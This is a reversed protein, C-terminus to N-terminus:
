SRTLLLARTHFARYLAALGPVALYPAVIRSIKSQDGTARIWESEVWEVQSFYRRCVRGIQSVSLYIVDNLFFLRYWETIESKTTRSASGSNPGSGVRAWAPPRFGLIVWVRVLPTPHVKGGFPILTHSELPRWGAPFFHLSYGGPRLVRAIESMPKSYSMVHELTSTSFCLDFSGDEFPFEGTPSSVFLCEGEDWMRNRGPTFQPRELDVGLAEYGEARLEQVHRGLGCGFDLIRADSPFPLRRQAAIARLIPLMPERSEWGGRRATTEVVAAHPRGNGASPDSDSTRSRHHRTSGNACM